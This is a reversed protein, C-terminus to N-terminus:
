KKNRARVVAERIAAKRANIVDVNNNKNKASKAQRYKIAEEMQERQLRVKRAEYRQRAANAKKSQTATNAESIVLMDICDVPCPEVCLECGTCQDAIVTHMLKAAGHIADVPCAQICKKCGICEDERIKALMPPKTQKEMDPIFPTPDRNLLEGLKILTKVGGPPCRNIQEAQYVMAEAYPRCGNYSCLGCQTQPLLQDIQEATVTTLNKLTM